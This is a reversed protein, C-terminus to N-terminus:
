TSYTRNAKANVKLLATKCPFSANGIRTSEVLVRYELKRSYSTLWKYSFISKCLSTIELALWTYHDVESIEFNIDICIELLKTITHLM